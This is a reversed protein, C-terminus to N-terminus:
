ANKRKETSAFYTGIIMISLAIIFTISPIEKFIVLSLATGAFPAVAYYTSTKAAGLYRQAYVYFFISLGYSVFGLLLACVIYFMNTIRQGLALAILVSFFGSFFGKIVVIQLPNKVSLKKTCNNEFGWCICALLVFLSGISFSLSSIDEFSLILSSLTVLGIASCLRKTISEKFAYFAILSTAAIEFNNLLSANAATTKTLGYMLCMPAAIDLLVMGIIYPLDSKTLPSEQNGKKFTKQIIGTILLGVGAGLYLLGGMMASPVTRLLIKSVPSNLSYLLAALLAYATAKRYRETM